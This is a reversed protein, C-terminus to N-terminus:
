SENARPAGRFATRRRSRLTPSGGIDRSSGLRLSPSTDGECRLSESRRMRVLETSVVGGRSPLTEAAKNRVGAFGEDPVRASM